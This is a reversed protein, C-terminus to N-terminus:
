FENNVITIECDEVLMQPKRQGGWENIAAKCVMEIQVPSGASQIKEILETAYFKVYEIGNITIRLHEKNSGMVFINSTTITAPRVYILAEKNGQGWTPTLSAVDLILNSLDDSDTSRIFNVDHANEGFNYNALAENAYNHFDRLNEDDISIGFANAHGQAYEFYGSDMLFQKFDKLESKDVGRASGRDFGQDNLRAVITPKKYKAALQMAILGNLESPFRDTDDLRVFLVRNELLDYKFIKQELKEVAALKAKDQRAKANACERAAEVAAREFTGKAGRKGSPIMRDGDIFAVFLREKEEMTGVRIMGNVLPVIYFAVAMPTLKEVIDDWTAYMKKTISYAQKELLAKFFKNKINKDKLGEVILYRNEMELVSGMDGIIGWAALDIYDDAWNLGEFEDVYRCFQYVVGAGTLEKNTYNPSLQNNVVIANYSLKVDTLHHDLILCPTNIGELMDHYHADNSSSDPLIILDYAEDREMLKDIHDQLGHQKGEHLWYDVQCNPNLRKTYQYIIAASTYGDNDSDVIILVKGGAKVVRTYLAAATRINKLNLPSQLHERTPNLFADVDEVGRSILLMKAYDQEFNANVLNIKM